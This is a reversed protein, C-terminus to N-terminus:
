LTKKYEKVLIDLEEKQEKTLVKNEKLLEYLRMGAEARSVLSIDRLALSGHYLASLLNAIIKPIRLINKFLEKM